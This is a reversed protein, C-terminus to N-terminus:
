RNGAGVVEGQGVVRSTDSAEAVREVEVAVVKYEPCMTDEDCESSTVMNVLHEPFHFTTYLIGPKVETSLRAKIRVEGRASHIRVLDGDTIGKKAADDPHIALLDEGVIEANATRRTMTGCNYHELIRGTTLIFPYEAAHKEIEKSEQFPFFHFKGLGRKFSGLHLIPTGVGGEAIPWQTGQETLNEWTAGKFFPVIQAIEALVGEPTYDPQDLGLRQMVEAVIVGDPKTGELPPIVANVRQVRREGNTFTGSKELFSSAPLVVDAFECTPTMFLEQVVLFDLANLAATVHETNPDTQAVDEGMIWLAKLRGDLAAEYMQPIKFGIEDSLHAGYFEEYRQHVEPDNVQLYGAGQHPQCGMDAAGQVNNQGRLPLVGVGPRGINGTMMAIDALTMVTKSGHSHETVGLGHFAMANAAKGYEIAAARVQERPVGHLHELEDLDLSRLGQEFVEWNECRNAIFDRDILDEDLLYFAFMDLLAVNTGPRLQLHHKAYPVLEIERPDIVILPVGKMVRQKIRSGTVPHGETPNAGTILICNTFELDAISNTAAGTGFAKQMGWATPSHCVRACADINNTGFGVRIFKQMLYNEENTCRASSIGAVANGGHEEKIRTLNKVIYDYAEDWTAETFHGNYRILPTRLRDRHNVFRFAYRGKLCTHSHNVESDTPAQISLVERGKTAVDLNCGVGCYTCVTRTKKTAEIAKSQFVDSIASTPCAQSCAGCSVCTSDMFSEDLGKIIRAEFGRGHMSLVHQGQVEDCARVCRSCNICKSLDSTLYPHSLDKTRDLHNAGAPYRVKRIGVKAAVTQLECNGNVECTLCDLPHDTLVLEVINRRLNRVKPSETFIFMGATLPTHCSAVVRRPGDAQLAVEVSCVRCAGYPELQPADCLTPVHGRGLHRDVFTLVTDGESFLMPEGDIHATLSSLDQVM